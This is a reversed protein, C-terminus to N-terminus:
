PDLGRFETVDAGACFARGNGNFVVAAATQVDQSQVAALLQEEVAASLANLKEPRNLSVVSVDGQRTAVVLETM